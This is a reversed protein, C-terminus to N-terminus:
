YASPDIASVIKALADKNDQRMPCLPLRYIEKILGRIALAAKIPMPNAEIFMAAVLDRLEHHLARAREVEDGLAAKMMTAVRRPLLNSLVSIVGDGGLLAAPCATFDDGSIIAFRPGALARITVVRDIEGTAEKVGVVGPLGALRALLEPKIDCGTRGPVNYVIVSLPTAEALAAYHRYLGEPSPKNYYPTVVLSHTAGAGHARKQHEVSEATSNTGTGAIVSARGSVRVAVREVVRAREAASLTAAEGTTGCPVIGDIGGELQLDCLADIAGFDISGDDNMPTVLATFTGRLAVSM